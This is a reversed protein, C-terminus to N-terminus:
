TRLACTESSSQPFLLEREKAHSFWAFFEERCKAYDQLGLDYLAQNEEENMDYTSMRLSESPAFVFAKGEKELQYMREQAQTYTVHRQDLAEVIKPYRHCKMRYFHRFREPNKVFDRPKSTIVVLYDCGKELARDVPISDTVGGDYYYRGEVKVPQCAAPIACSAMIIRCDDPKLQDKSFYHPTGTIADTAVVEYETPNEQIAGVDLSDKGASGSIDQYIYELGFLDGTKLYSHMGFYDRDHIHDTYFRLNRGRQGALFSATNASGASVGIAYDFTIADDLLVDLIAAAYACKMGGGEVVLGIKSM